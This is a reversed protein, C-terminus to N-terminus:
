KLKTFFPSKEFFNNTDKIYSKVQPVLPQLHFDLFSSINETNLIIVATQFLLDVQFMRYHKTYKQFCTFAFLSQSNCWLINLQILM